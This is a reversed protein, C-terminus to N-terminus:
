KNPDIRNSLLTLLKLRSARFRKVDINYKDFSLIHNLAIGHASDPDFDALM